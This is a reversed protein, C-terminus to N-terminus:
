NCFACLTPNRAYLTVKQVCLRVAACAPRALATGLVGAATVKNTALPEDPQLVSQYLGATQFLARGVNGRFRGGAAALPCPLSAHTVGPAYWPCLRALWPTHDHTCSNSPAQSAPLAERQGGEQSRGISTYAVNYNGWLLANDLPRPQQQAGVAELQELLSDVKQRTEPAVALGSDTDQILSLVQLCGSSRSAGKCLCDLWVVDM